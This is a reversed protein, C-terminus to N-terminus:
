APWIGSHRRRTQRAYICSNCNQPFFAHFSFLGGLVRSDKTEYVKFSRQFYSEVGGYVQMSFHSSFTYKATAGDLAGLVTGPHLFLRGVSFDLKKGLLNKGNFRLSYVKFREEGALSQNADTLARMSTQFSFHKGPSVASLRAYQYFRTHAQDSEYSYISNRVSGHFGIGSAFVSAAIFVFLIIFVRKM